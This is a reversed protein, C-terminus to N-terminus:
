AEACIIDEISFTYNTSISIFAWLIFFGASNSQFLFVSFYLFGSACCSKYPADVFADGHLLFGVAM